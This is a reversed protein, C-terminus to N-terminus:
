HRCWLRIHVGQVLGIIARWAIQGKTHRVPGALPDKTKLWRNLERAIALVVAAELALRINGIQAPLSEADALLQDVGALMRNLVRRMAPSAVSSALEDVGTDEAEFWDMPIYVRDLNQYDARCDQIHNIVQLAVSLADAAKETEAGTEGHLVLLYRGCPAASLCCYDMLEAWDAYRQKVADQRFAVLLNKAHTPSVGTETLSAALARAPLSDIGAATNSDPVGQHDGSLVDSIADLRALKQDSDLHPDDAIDDAARALEYFARIHPRLAPDILVSAVPFSEDGAGKSSNYIEVCAKEGPDILVM